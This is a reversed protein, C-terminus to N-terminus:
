WVAQGSYNKSVQHFGCIWLVFNICYFVKCQYIKEGKLTKKDFNTEQLSSERMLKDVQELLAVCFRYLDKRNWM